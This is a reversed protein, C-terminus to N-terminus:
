AVDCKKIYSVYQQGRGWWSGFETFKVNLEGDVFRPFMEIFDMVSKKTLEYEHPLKRELEAMLDIFNSLNSYSNKSLMENHIEALSMCIKNIDDNLEGARMACVFPVRHDIFGMSCNRYQSLIADNTASLISNSSKHWRDDVFFKPMSNYFDFDERLASVSEPLSFIYRSKHWDHVIMDAVWDTAPRTSQGLSKLHSTFVNAAIEVQEPFSSKNEFLKIRFLRRCIESLVSAASTTTSILVGGPKVFSGAHQIMEVPKSQSPVAAEIIVVDFLRNDKYDFINSEIIEISKANFLKKSKKENLIEISATSADVFVYLEPSYLSTAVANYGGGPGLELVNKGYFQQLPIGLSTYLFNRKYVFEDIKTLDQSVPIINHKNYFEIYAIKDINSIDAFKEKNKETTKKM